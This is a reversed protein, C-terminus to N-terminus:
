LLCKNYSIAKEIEFKFITYINFEMNYKKKFKIRHM